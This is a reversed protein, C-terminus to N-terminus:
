LCAAEEYFKFHDSMDELKLADGNDIIARTEENPSWDPNFAAELAHSIQRWVFAIRRKNYLWVNSPTRYEVGYSKPRFSGAFGYTERRVNYGTEWLITYVGLFEDLAQIVRCCAEIHDSNHPDQTHFGGIHIHGGVSRVLGEGEDPKPNIAGGEWANFDPACGLETAESPLMMQLEPDFQASICNDLAVGKPLMGSLSNMVNELNRQFDEPCDVPDINFELAMGDVQVAGLPVEQPKEKNGPVLGYAPIVSKEETDIAFFEPDAGVTINFGHINM